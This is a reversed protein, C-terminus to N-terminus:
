SGRYPKNLEDIKELLRSRILDIQKPDELKNRNKDTLYFADIAAGKETNIRAFNIDLELDSLVHLVHFLLGLRDPTQVELLTFSESSEQDIIISTPFTEQEQRPPRRVAAYAQKIEEDFPYSEGSLASCVTRQMKQKMSHSTVPFHEDDCVVFTDLVFGDARTYIEASLINIRSVSFSGAIKMFLGHRDWTCVTVISHGQDPLNEWHFVPVLANEDSEALSAFFQHILRVDRVVTPVDARWWYREPMLSFHAEIEEIPIDSPLSELVGHRLREMRTTLEAQFDTDGKLAKRVRDYLQWGLSEKWESWNKGSTAMGDVFTMLHLMDLQQETTFIPTVSQITAPDDLDRRTAVSALTMHHDVLLLLTRRDEGAFQFRRSVKQALEASADSHNRSPQAKGTDHMLIALYLLHPQEIDQFLKRYKSAPSETSDIISDLTEIAVLTHEDATYRHFFEHQVLCTLPEFEPVYRGLFGVEHMMRLIRGVKGKQKLITLFTERHSKAYRFEKNVRSLSDRLLSQLRGSLRADHQQCYLFVRIMRAPDSAFPQKEPHTITNGRLIFGDPLLLPKKRFPNLRSKWGMASEDAPEEIALREYVAKSLVYIDRAKLYYDRMLCETRRVAERQRYGFNVAIADQQNLYIVETARNNLYHLETRLRWEFDHAEELKKMEKQTLYENEQLQALTRLGYKVDAMWLINQYDRLGGCGNKINPEQMFVTAGYKEYRVIRDMMRDKIYAAINPQLIKTRFQQQWKQFRRVDGEVLRAELMATKTQVDAAAQEFSKAFSGTFHGVKMGVDWLLYLIQEVIRQVIELDKPKAAEHIFSIDIDSFPALERRGYGGTAIMILPLQNRPKDVMCFSCANKYLTRMLVDILHARAHAFEMGGAGRSHLLRLRHEELKLFERYSDLQDGPKANKASKLKRARTLIKTIHQQRNM